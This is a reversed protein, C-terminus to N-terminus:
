CLFLFFEQHLMDWGRQHRPTSLPWYGCPVGLSEQCIGWVDEPSEKCDRPRSDVPDRPRSALPDRSLIGQFTLLLVSDAIQICDRCLRCVCTTIRKIMSCPRILTYKKVYFSRQFYINKITEFVM